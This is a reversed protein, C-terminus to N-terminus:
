KFVFLSIVSLVYFQDDKIATFEPKMFYIKMESFILNFHDLSFFEYRITM